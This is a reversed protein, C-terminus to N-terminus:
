RGNGCKGVAANGDDCDEDSLVGDKDGDQYFYTRARQFAAPGVKAGMLRGPIDDFPAETGAWLRSLAAQDAADRYTAWQLRVDANPSKDPRLSGGGARFTFEGLGGPFYEDGTLQALAEAAARAFVAHGSVYGGCPPSVFTKPQYPFWDAALIWGAAIREETPKAVSFPGKWAYVKLRGVNENKAGALPDGKKVLEIRGPVLPLGVPHYSPLKPDSSQGHAALYRIASLPRIGNYWAKSSWAAIAADHLAAGLVFYSKVDWELGSLVPGRGGFKKVLGPQDSVYNFLAFWTGPATENNPGESWFQAAARVFDARGVLQPAYPQGTSPNVAHGAGADRGTKLNYFDRLAALNHPYREVNGMSRPSVDWQEANAPDLLASWAAVLAYSWQYDASFGAAKVTDLRPLFTRTPDHYVWYNHGNRGYVIRDEPRLAFPLVRGWHVGQSSQTGTIPRGSPGISGIYDALHVGCKACELMQYGDEDIAVTLKVPQWRNPETGAPSGPVVVDLPPNAPQNSEGHYNGDENSGDLRGMQLICQALYNGLAAPSGSQYNIDHNRIDYGHRAMVADFRTKAGAARPSNSYRAMLLRYAAYSMAEQRASDVNLPVPLRNCPCTFGGVTKGLLYPQAEGDDYATWVDYLAVSFHFLNRAQVHPRLLDEKVTQLLAENWERAISPQAHLTQTLLAVGTLLLLRRIPSRFM